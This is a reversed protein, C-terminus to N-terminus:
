IYSEVTVTHKGNADEVIITSPINVMGLGSTWQATHYTALNFGANSNNQMLQYEFKGRVPEFYLKVEPTPFYWGNAIIILVNDGTNVYPRKYAKYALDHASALVPTGSTAQKRHQQLLEQAEKSQLQQIADEKSISM